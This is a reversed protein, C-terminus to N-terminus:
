GIKECLNEFLIQTYEKNKDAIILVNKGAKIVIHSDSVSRLPKPSRM